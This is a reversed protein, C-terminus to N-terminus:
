GIGVSTLVDTSSDSAWTFGHCSDGKPELDELHNRGACRRRSPRPRWSPKRSCRCVFRSSPPALGVSSPGAEEHDRRRGPPAGRRPVRFGGPDRPPGAPAGRAARAGHHNAAASSPELSGVPPALWEGREIRDLRFPRPENLALDQCNLLTMTRELLVAEITVDRVTTGRAGAYTIRLPARHVWAHEVAARVDVPAPASPVGIWSLTSALREVERQRATPLAGQVKDIAASRLTEVFPLLRTRELWRRAAVLIAAEHPTFNVPPLTYGKDLALGGGRGREVTVAARRLAELDRYITRVTVEVREALQEATIGTRRARLLERLAFPRDTRRM